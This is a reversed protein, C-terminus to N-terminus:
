IAGLGSLAIYIGLFFRGCGVTGDVPHVGGCQAIIVDADLSKCVIGCLCGISERGDFFGNSQSLAFGVTQRIM